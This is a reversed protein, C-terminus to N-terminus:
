ALQRRARSAIWLLLAAVLVILPTACYWHEWLGDVGGGAVEYGVGFFGLASLVFAGVRGMGSRSTM